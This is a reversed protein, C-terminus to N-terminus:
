GLVSGSNTGIFETVAEAIPNVPCGSAILNQDRTM